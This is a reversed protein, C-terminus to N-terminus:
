IGLIRNVESLMFQEQAKTAFGQFNMGPLILGADEIKIWMNKLERMVLDNKGAIWGVSTLHDVMLKKVKEKHQLLETDTM